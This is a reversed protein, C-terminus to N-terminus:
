PTGDAVIGEDSGQVNTLIKMMGPLDLHVRGQLPHRKYPLTWSTQIFSGKTAAQPHPNNWIFSHSPPKLYKKINM